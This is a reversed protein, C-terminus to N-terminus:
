LKRRKRKRLKIKQTILISPCVLFNSIWSLMTKRNIFYIKFLLTSEMAVLISPHLLMNQFNSRTSLQKKLILGSTYVSTTSASTRSVNSTAAQLIFNLLVKSNDTEARSPLFSKQRKRSNKRLLIPRAIRRLSLQIKKRLNLRSNHPNLRPLLHRTSAKQWESYSLKTTRSEKQTASRSLTQCVKGGNPIILQLRTWKNMINNRQIAITGSSSM